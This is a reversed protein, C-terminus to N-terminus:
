IGEKQSLSILKKKVRHKIVRVNEASLGTMAAIRKDDLEAQVSLLLVEREKDPLQYIQDYLWRKREDSIFERVIDKPDEIWEVHIQSEDLWRKKKKVVNFYENKLVTYLWSKLSGFQYSLAAKVFANAVLDEADEKCHTLSFAYLFLHRYYLTYARELEDNKM